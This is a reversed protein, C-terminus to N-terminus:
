SGPDPVLVGRAQVVDLDHTAPPGTLPAPDVDTWTAGGDLSFQAHWAVTLTMTVAGTDTYTHGYYDACEATDCPDTTSYAKGPDTTSDTAGDGFDWDAHDFGIRLAVRRGVVTVTGLTRNSQTEAWVISEANVLARTTWASGIQVTPLLRLVQQRLDAATLVPPATGKPANGPCWSDLLVWTANQRIFTAFAPGAPCRRPSGCQSNWFGNDASSPFGCIVTKTPQQSQGSVTVQGDGSSTQQEICVGRVVVGLPGSNGGASCASEDAFGRTAVLLQGLMTLAITMLLWKV